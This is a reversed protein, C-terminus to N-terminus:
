VDLDEEALILMMGEEDVLRAERLREDVQAKTSKFRFFLYIISVVGGVACIVGFAINAYTVVEDLSIPSLVLALRIIFELFLIFGWWLTLFTIDFRFRHSHEFMWDYKDISPGTTDGFLQRIIYKNFRSRRRNPRRNTELDYNNTATSDRQIENEEPTADPANGNPKENPLEQEAPHVSNIPKVNTTNTYQQDVPEVSTVNASGYVLSPNINGLPILQKIVLLMFPKLRVSRFKIPLVTIIFGVGLILTVISKEFTLIRADGSAFAVIASVLFALFVLIGIADLSRAYILRLIVMILAPVGGILLAYAPNGLPGKLVFYLLVPLAVDMIIMGIVKLVNRFILRRTAMAYFLERDPNNALEQEELEHPGISSSTKRYKEEISLRNQDPRPTDLTTQTAEEPRSASTGNEPHSSM